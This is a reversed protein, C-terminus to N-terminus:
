PVIFQTWRLGEHDGLHATLTVPGVTAPEAVLRVLADREGPPIAFSLEMGGYGAQERLPRPLIRQLGLPEVFKANIWVDVRSEGSLPRLHLTVQTATGYRAVPEYDVSLSGDPAAQSHHSFPGRGLFGLFALLVFGGMVFRGIVEVRHWRDEFVPDFGVEFEDNIREVSDM